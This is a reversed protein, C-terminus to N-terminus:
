FVFLDKEDCAVVIIRLVYAFRPFVFGVAHVAVHLHAVPQAHRHKEVIADDAAHIDDADVVAIVAKSRPLEPPQFFLDFLTQRDKQREVVRQKLFRKVVMVPFAQGVLRGIQDTAVLLM